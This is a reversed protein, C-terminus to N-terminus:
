PARHIAFQLFPEVIYANCQTQYFAWFQLGNRNTGVIITAALAPLSRAQGESCPLACTSNRRPACPTGICPSANLAPTRDRGRSQQDRKAEQLLFILEIIRHLAFQEPRTIAQTRIAEPLTFDFAEELALFFLEIDDDDLTLDVFTADDQIASKDVLIIGLADFM